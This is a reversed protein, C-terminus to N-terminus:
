GVVGDFVARGSQGDHANNPDRLAKVAESTVAACSPCRVDIQDFNELQKETGDSLPFLFECGCICRMPVCRSHGRGRLSQPIAALITKESM